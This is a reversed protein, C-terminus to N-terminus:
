NVYKKALIWCQAPNRFDNKIDVERYDPWKHTNFIKSIYDVNGWQGIEIIEFECSAFLCALGIPTYGTYYNHPLSHQINVTPVNAYFYAGPKLYRSINDLCLFPNYLHEFTQNLIVFDYADKPINLTHLDYDITNEAYNFNTIKNTPLTEVEPDKYCNFSLLNESSLKYKEALRQFELVAIVRPFDKGEWKWNINKELPLPNYRNLYESNNNISVHDNNLKIIDDSTLHKM